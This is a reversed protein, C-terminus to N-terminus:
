LEAKELINKMDKFDEKSIEGKVYRIKLIEIADPIKKESKSFAKIFLIVLLLLLPIVIWWFLGFGSWNGMMHGGGNINNGHANLALPIVSIIMIIWTLRRM